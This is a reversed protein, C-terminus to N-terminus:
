PKLPSRVVLSIARLLWPLFIVHIQSYSRLKDWDYGTLVSFDVTLM